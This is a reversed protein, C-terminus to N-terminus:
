LQDSDVGLERLKAALRDARQAEQEARLEAARRASETEELGLLQIGSSAEFFKLDQNKLCLDIGLVESRLSFDNPQDLPIQPIPFYNGEILRFGQLRSKLYDGTPDYQFYEQVGWFAYLGKKSGQDENVTSKSTIELVFNPYKEGEEWIKYSRRKRKDQNQVVFVDPSICAKPNGEEYYILINGSVYVDSQNQFYLDLVSVSYILYARQFDTEAMPRGDSEPYEIEALLQALEYADQTTAM